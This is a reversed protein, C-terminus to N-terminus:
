IRMEYDLNAESINVGCLQSLAYNKGKESRAEAGSASSTM